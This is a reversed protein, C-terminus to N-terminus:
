KLSFTVSVNGDGLISKLENQTINDIHGLKTFNWTNVDYYITINSGLYLIIDGPETTIQEDNRPLTEPLEGVKEFSGYDHMDVTVAGNKLLEAFAQASSNDALTATLVTDGVTIQLKQETQELPLSAYWAAVDDRSASAAFRKGALQNGIPVLDAINKESTSIGSSGSTCFPIVTKGKLNYQELFTFVPMPATYWWVPVCVFVVDYQAMNEVKGKIAPREGAEKEAKADETCANYEVPYPKERIIEFEDAGTKQAIYQAAERTNGSWSFYAVLTKKGKLSMVEKNETESENTENSVQRAKATCASLGMVTLLVAALMM